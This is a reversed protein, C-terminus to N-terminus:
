LRRGRPTPRAPHDRRHGRRRVRCHRDHRTNM